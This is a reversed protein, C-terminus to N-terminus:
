LSEKLPTKKLRRGLAILPNKLLPIGGYPLLLRYFGASTGAGRHNKRRRAYKTSLACKAEKALIRKSVLNSDKKRNM